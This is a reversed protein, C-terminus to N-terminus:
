MNQVSLKLDEVDQLAGNLLTIDNNSLSKVQGLDGDADKFSFNAPVITTM